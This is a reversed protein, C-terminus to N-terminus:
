SASLSTSHLLFSIACGSRCRSFVTLMPEGDEIIMPEERVIDVSQSSAPTQETGAEPLSKGAKFLM